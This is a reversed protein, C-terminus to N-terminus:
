LGQPWLSGSMVSHSWKWKSAILYLYCFFTYIIRGLFAHLLLILLSFHRLLGVCLKRLRLWSVLDMLHLCSNLVYKCSNEPLGTKLIRQKWQWPWLNSGQGSFLSVVLCRAQYFFLCVFSGNKIKGSVCIFSSTFFIM